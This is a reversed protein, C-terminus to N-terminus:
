LLNYSIYTLTGALGQVSRPPCRSVCGRTGLSTNTVMHGQRLGKGVRGKFPFKCPGRCWGIWLWQSFSQTWFSLSSCDSKTKQLSGSLLCNGFAIWLHIPYGDLTKNLSFDHLLTYIQPYACHAYSLLPWHMPYCLSSSSNSQTWSSYITYM